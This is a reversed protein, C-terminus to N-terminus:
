PQIAYLYAPESTGIRKVLRVRQPYKKMFPQMINHLTNIVNGNNVKPQLRLSAIIVHSVHDRQFLTLVSDPNSQKTKGDMYLVKYVPYFEKGKGYIFSMPAKRSAVLAEPPLSDACWRSMKLFNVWDPTYGAYADGALNEKLTSMNDYAQSTSTWMSTAILLVAVTAYVRAGISFKELVGYLVHFVLLLIMPVVIVIIRPQDWRAQLVVFSAGLIAASYLGTILLAKDGRRITRIIAWLLLMVMVLALFTYNNKSNPDVPPDKQLVGIIEWFRKGLYIGINSFFRGM